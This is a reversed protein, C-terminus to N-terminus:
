LRGSATSSASLDDLYVRSADLVRTSARKLAKRAANFQVGLKILAMAEAPRFVARALFSRIAVRGACDLARVVNEPIESSATDAIARVAAFPVGRARACRAQAGSEMDTAAARTREALARKARPAAVVTASEALAGACLRHDAALARYLREHWEASVPYVEGAVDVVRRPLILCGPGLREDLAAACGWSLLARAGRSILLESAAGAREAGIGALAVLVGDSLRECTGIRM